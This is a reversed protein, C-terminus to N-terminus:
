VVLDPFQEILLEHTWKGVMNIVTKSGETDDQSRYHAYHSHLCKVSPVFSTRDANQARVGKHDTGLLHANYYNIFNSLSLYPLYSKNTCITQALTILELCHFASRLLWIVM